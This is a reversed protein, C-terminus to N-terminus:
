NVISCNSAEGICYYDGYMWRGQLYWRLQDYYSGGRTTTGFISPASAYVKTTFNLISMTIRMFILILLLVSVVKKM